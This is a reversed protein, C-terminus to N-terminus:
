PQLESSLKFEGADYAVQMRIMRQDVSLGDVADLSGFVEVQHSRLLKIKKESSWEAFRVGNRSGVPVENVYREFNGPRFLTSQNMFKKNDKQFHSDKAKVDIVSICDEVTYGEALRAAIHGDIDKKYGKGTVSNLHELVVSVECEYPRISVVASKGSSRKKEAGGNHEERIRDVGIRDEGIPLTTSLQQKADALSSGLVQKADALHEAKKRGGAAGAIRKKEVLADYEGMRKLLTPSSFTSDEFVDFLGYGTVVAKIKEASTGYRKALIPLMSMPYRYRDQERLTEILVWFIGYGEMGLQDILLMCRYDDKANSDHKFWYAANAM